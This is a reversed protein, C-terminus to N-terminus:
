FPRLTDNLANEAPEGSSWIWDSRDQYCEEVPVGEM